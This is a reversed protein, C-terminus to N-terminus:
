VLYKFEVEGTRIISGPVVESMQGPKVESGNLQTYNTESLNKVYLKNDRYYLEAQERSVTKENLQIHAYAREGNVERRGITVVFGDATPYGAIRFEKGMDSGGSIVLKGPVFKLTKPTSKVIKITKFDNDSSFVPPQEKIGQNYELEQHVPVSRYEQQIEQMTDVPKKKFQFYVFAIGLVGVFGILSYLLTNDTSNPPQVITSDKITSGKTSIIENILYKSKESVFINNTLKDIYVIGKVHYKVNTEPAPEATNVRIINGFDGKILYYSTSGIGHVYQIVLGDFEVADGEFSISSEKIADITTSKFQTFSNNSILFQFLLLAIFTFYKM